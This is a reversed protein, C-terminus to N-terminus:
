GGAAGTLKGPGKQVVCSAGEPHPVSQQSGVSRACFPGCTGKLHLAMRRMFVHGRTGSPTLGTATDSDKPLGLFVPFSALTSM